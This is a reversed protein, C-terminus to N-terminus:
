NYLTKRFWKDNFLLGINISFYDERVLGKMVTGRAGYEVGVNISSFTGTIPFGLGFNVSKDNISQGNIVLGTKEFKVGARYTIRNLYNSYSDFKPLYFGGFAFKTGKEYSVNNYNEFRNLQNGKDTLTVDAGVFWKRNGVGTGLSMKSPIKLSTDAVNVEQTDVAAVNGSGAVYITSVERENNSKLNAKPAYTFSSTLNLNKSLKTAYTVGTNFAVGSLTSVNIERSGFQVGGQFLQSESDITGFLYQMDVGLSLKSTLKYGTGFFVKNVGGRGLYVKQTLTTQNYNIFKYGVATQPIVGTAVGWKKSIPFGLILYDFTTKKAKESNVGANLNYFSSTGGIQFSTLLQNSFSAPNLVNVHTSDSYVSIGGMNVVENTGKFKANGIGYFSYPSPTNEQANVIGSVLIAFLIAIKKIM